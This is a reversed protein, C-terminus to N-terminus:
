PMKFKEHDAIPMYGHFPIKRLNTELEKEGRATVTPGCKVQVDEVIRSRSLLRYLMDQSGKVEVTIRGPILRIESKRLGLYWGLEKMLTAELGRAARLRYTYVSASM